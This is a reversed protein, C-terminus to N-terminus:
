DLGDETYQRSVGNDDIEFPYVPDPYASKVTVITGDVTRYKKGVELKMAIGGTIRDKSKIAQQHLTAELKKTKQKDESKSHM